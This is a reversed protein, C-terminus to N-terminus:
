KIEKKYKTKTAERIWKSINYNNKKLYEAVEIDEYYYFRVKKNQKTTM